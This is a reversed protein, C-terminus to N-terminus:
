KIFTCWINWKFEFNKWFEIWRRFVMYYENVYVKGISKLELKIFLFHTPANHPFIASFVDDGIKVIRKALVITVSTGYWKGYYLEDTQSEGVIGIPPSFIFLEFM